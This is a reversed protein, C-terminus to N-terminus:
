WVPYGSLEKLMKLTFDENMVPPPPCFVGHNEFVEDEGVQEALSTWVAGGQPIDTNSPYKVHQFFCMM